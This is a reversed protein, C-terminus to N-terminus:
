RKAGKAKNSETGIDDSDGVVGPSHEVNAQSADNAAQQAEDLEDPNAGLKAAEAKSKPKYPVFGKSKLGEVVEKPLDTVDIPRKIAHGGFSSGPPLEVDKIEYAKADEVIITEGTEPDLEEHTVAPVKMTAKGKHILFVRHKTM